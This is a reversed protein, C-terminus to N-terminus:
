LFRLDLKLRMFLCCGLRVRGPGPFRLWRRAQVATLDIMRVRYVLLKWSHEEPRGARIGPRMSRNGATNLYHISIYLLSSAWSARNQAENNSIEGCRPVTNKRTVCKTYVM